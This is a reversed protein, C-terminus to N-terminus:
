RLIPINVKPGFFTFTDFCLFDKMSINAINKSSFFIKSWEQTVLRQKTINKMSRSKERERSFLLFTKGFNNQHFKKCLLASKRNLTNKIKLPAWKLLASRSNAFDSCISGSLKCCPSFIGWTLGLLFQVTEKQGKYCLTRFKSKILGRFARSFDQLVKEKVFWYVILNSQFFDHLFEQM